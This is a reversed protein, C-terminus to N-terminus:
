AQATQDDARAAGDARGPQAHETNAKDYDEIFERLTAVARSMGDGLRTFMGTRQLADRVEDTLKPLRSVRRDLATIKRLMERNAIVVKQKIRFLNDNEKGLEIIRDNAKIFEDGYLKIVYDLLEEPTRTKSERAASILLELQQTKL